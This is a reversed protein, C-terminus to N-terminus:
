EFKFGQEVQWLATRHAKCCECEGCPKRIAKNGPPECYWVNDLIWEAEKKVQRIIEYKPTNFLPFDLTLKKGLIDGVYNKIYELKDLHQLACDGKIYGLRITEGHDAHLLAHFVWMIPQIVGYSTCHDQNKARISVDVEIHPFRYDAMKFLRLLKNRATRDQKVGGVQEYNVSLTRVSEGRSTDLLARYLMWTSDLGGSWLLLM